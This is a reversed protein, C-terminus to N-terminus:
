CYEVQCLLFLMIYYYLQRVLALLFSHFFRCSSTKQVISLFNASLRRAFFNGFLVQCINRYTIYYVLQGSLPLSDCFVKQFFSWFLPQCVSLFTIYYFLRKFAVLVKFISCHLFFTVVRSIEKFSSFAWAFLLFHATIVCANNFLISIKSRSSQYISNLLSNSGPEPRVSAARKVCALRVFFKPKSLNKTASPHTVRSCGAESLPIAEPFPHYYRM